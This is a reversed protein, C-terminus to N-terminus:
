EWTNKRKRELDCTKCWTQLGDKTNKCKSFMSINLSQGCKSCIKYSNKLCSKCINQYGDETTANKHYEHVLKIEGCKSCTKYNGKVLFTYYYETFLREYANCLKRCMSEIIRGTSKSDEGIKNSIDQNKVTILENKKHKTQYIRIIEREIGDFECISACKNFIRVLKDVNENIQNHFRLLKLVIKWNKHDFLDLNLLHRSNSIAFDNADNIRDPTYSHLVYKYNELRDADNEFKKQRKEKYTPQKDWYILYNALRFLLPNQPLKDKQGLNVNDFYKQITYQNEEVIKNVCNIRAKLTKLNYDVETM